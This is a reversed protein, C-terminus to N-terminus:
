ITVPLQLMDNVVRLTGSFGQARAYQQGPPFRKRIAPTRACNLRPDLGVSQKLLGLRASSANKTILYRSTARKRGPIPAM